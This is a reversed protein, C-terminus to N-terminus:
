IKYKIKEGNQKNIEFINTKIKMLPEITEYNNKIM